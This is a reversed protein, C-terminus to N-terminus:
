REGELFFAAGRAGLLAATMPVAYNLSIECPMHSRALPGALFRPHVEPGLGAQSRSPTAAPRHAIALKPEHVSM